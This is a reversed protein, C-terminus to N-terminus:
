LVAARMPVSKAVSNEVQVSFLRYAVNVYATLVDEHADIEVDGNVITLDRVFCPNTGSYRGDAIKEVMIGSHYEGGM